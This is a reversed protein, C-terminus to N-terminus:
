LSVFRLNGLVSDRDWRSIGDAAVNHVGRVHTADLHWGSVMELVGLLRM